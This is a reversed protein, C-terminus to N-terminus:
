CLSGFPKTLRVQRPKSRLQHFSLFKQNRQNRAKRLVTRVESKQYKDLVSLKKEQRKKERGMEEKEKRDTLAFIGADPSQDHQILLSTLQCPFSVKRELM